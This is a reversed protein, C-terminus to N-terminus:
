IINKQMAPISCIYCTEVPVDCINLKYYVMTDTLWISDHLYLGNCELPLKLIYKSSDLRVTASHIYIFSYEDYVALGLFIYKPLYKTGCISDLPFALIPIEWSVKDDTIWWSYNLSLTMTSWSYSWFIKLHSTNYRPSLWFWFFDTIYPPECISHNGAFHTKTPNM